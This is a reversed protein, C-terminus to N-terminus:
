AVKREPITPAAVPKVRRLTPLLEGARHEAARRLLRNPDVHFVDVSLLRKSLPLKRM